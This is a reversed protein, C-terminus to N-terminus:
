SSQTAMTGNKWTEGKISGTWYKLIKKLKSKFKNYTEIEDLLLGINTCYEKITSM